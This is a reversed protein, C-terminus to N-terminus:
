RRRRGVIALGAMGLLVLSAPEPIVGARLWVDGGVSYDITYPNANGDLAAVTGQPLLTFEGQSTAGDILQMDVPSGTYASLDVLLLDGDPSSLNVDGSALITSVGLSDAVFSLTGVALTDTLGGAELGLSIDSVDVTVNSGSIATLGVGSDNLGIRLAGGLLTADDSLNLTGTGGEGIYAGAGATTDITGGSVNAVGTSGGFSGVVLFSGAETLSTNITGGTMNLEGISNAERGLVTWAGSNMTGGSMNLTGSGGFAGFWTERSSNVTGADLNMVGIAGPERGVQLTGSDGENLNLSGETNVNLTGTGATGFERGGVYLRNTDFTGSGTGFGTTAGGAGATDALNFTGTGGNQGVFTWNTAGSGASGATQDLRGTLGANSGVFIDVVPGNTPTASIIAHDPSDLDVAANSGTPFTGGWNLPDDWNNDGFGNDWQALATPPSVALCLTLAGLTLAFRCFKMM